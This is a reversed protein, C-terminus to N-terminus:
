TRQRAVWRPGGVAEAELRSLLKNSRLRHRRGDAIPLVHPAHVGESVNDLSMLLAIIDTHKQRKNSRKANALVWLWTDPASDLPPRLPGCIDQAPELGKHRPCRQEVSHREIFNLLQHTAVRSYIQLARAQGVPARLSCYATCGPWRSAAQTRLRDALCLRHGCLPALRRFHPASFDARGALLAVPPARWWTRDTTFLDSTEPCSALDATMAAVHSM